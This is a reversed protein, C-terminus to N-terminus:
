PVERGPRPAPAEITEAARELLRIAERCMGVVHYDVKWESGKNRSKPSAYWGGHDPDVYTHKVFDVVHQLPDLLERRGRLIAFHMLARIAECQEWWGKTSSVRRGDPSAPSRIGGDKPDYALLLGYDLFADAQTLYAEPLGREVASSLLYAWEFAHGLDLRGGEGEPLEEWDLTYVEPLRSDSQRCLRRVVFDSVGRADRHVCEMGELDGLALLAEFLHM